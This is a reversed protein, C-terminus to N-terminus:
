PIESQLVVAVSGHKASDSVLLLQCQGKGFLWDLLLCGLVLKCHNNVECVMAAKNGAETNLLVPAFRASSCWYVHLFSNRNIRRVEVDRVTLTAPGASVDIGSRVVVRPIIKSKVGVMAQYGVGNRPGCEVRRKGAIAAILSALALRKDHHATSNFCHENDRFAL